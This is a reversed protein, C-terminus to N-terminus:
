EKKKQRFLIGNYQYVVNLKNQMAKQFYTNRLYVKYSHKPNHVPM